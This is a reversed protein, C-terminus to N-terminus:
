NMGAESLFKKELDILEKSRVAIKRVPIGAYISFSDCDRNVLSLAGIASHDKIKVEPLIICGSGVVVHRGIYVDGNKVNRYKNPITPGTMFKGSYDDNSSYVSTRSSLGAFDAIIIKGGGILSVYVAIHVNRGIEIGGEGASIVCFDDIRTNDGISINGANYFAAKDSVRINKGAKKFGMQSIANIDLIAM